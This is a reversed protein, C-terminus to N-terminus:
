LDTYRLSVMVMFFIEKETDDRTDQAAFSLAESKGRTALLAPVLAPPPASEESQLRQLVGLTVRGTETVWAAWNPAGRSSNGDKTASRVQTIQPNHAGREVHGLRGGIEWSIKTTELGHPCGKQKGAISHIKKVIRINIIVSNAPTLIQPVM